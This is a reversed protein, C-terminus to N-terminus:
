AQISEYEDNSHDNVAVDGLLVHKRNSRRFRRLVCVCSGFMFSIFLIVCLASITANVLTKGSLKAHIDMIQNLNYRTYAKSPLVCISETVHGSKKKFTEPDFDIDDVCNEWTESTLGCSVVCAQQIRCRGDCPIQDTGKYWHNYFKDWIVDAKETQIISAEEQNDVDSTITTTDVVLRGSLEKVEANTLENLGIYERLSSFMQYFEIYENSGDSITTINKLDTSFSIIDKLFKTGGQTHDYEVIHYFPASHYIPSISGSIFMPPHSDPLGATRRLENTHIHGFFLGSIVDNFEAILNYFRHLHSPDMLNNGVSHIYSEVIPPIHGTIYARKKMNRIEKLTVALWEHQGFPDFTSDIRAKKNGQKEQHNNLESSWLVTNLVIIYLDKTVERSLYGGCAFVAKEEENIFSFPFSSVMDAFWPSTSQPLTGNEGVLCADTSTIEIKYDDEFDNNGLDLPPLSLVPVDPFYTNVTDYIFQITKHVMKEVVDESGTGVSSTSHRTADGTFLIFDPNPMSQAANWISSVVLAENSECGYASYPPADSNQCPANEKYKKADKTGYFPDLHVDSFFLFKGTLNTIDSEEKSANM